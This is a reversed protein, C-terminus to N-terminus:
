PSIAFWTHYRKISTSPWFKFNRVKASGDCGLRYRLFRAERARRIRRFWWIFHFEWQFRASIIWCWGHSESLRGTSIPTLSSWIDTRLYWFWVSTCLQFEDIIVIYKMWPIPNSYKGCVWVAFFDPINQQCGTWGTTWICRCCVFPVTSFPFGTCYFGFRGFTDVYSFQVNYVKCFEHNKSDQVSYLLCRIHTHPYCDYVPHTLRDYLVRPHWSLLISLFRLLLDYCVPPIIILIFPLFSTNLFIVQM